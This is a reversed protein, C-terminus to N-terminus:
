GEKPFDCSLGGYTANGRSAHFRICDVVGGKWPIQVVKYTDDNQKLIVAPDHDGSGCGALLFVCLLACALGARM